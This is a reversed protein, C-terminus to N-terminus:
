HMKKDSKIDEITCVNCDKHEGDGKENLKCLCAVCCLENHTKCFYELKNPHNENKCFGTFLTKLDQDLNYQNHNPCLNSHNNDCKNCIYIKCIPYYGKAENNSHEKSSCKKNEKLEM